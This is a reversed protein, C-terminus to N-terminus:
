FDFFDPEKTLTDTFGFQSIYNEEPEFGFKKFFDEPSFECFPEDPSTLPVDQEWNVQQFLTATDSQDFWACLATFDIDYRIFDGDDERQVLQDNFFKVAQRFSELWKQYERSEPLKPRKKASVHLTKLPKNQALFNRFTKQNEHLKGKEVLHACINTYSPIKENTLAASIIEQAFTDL